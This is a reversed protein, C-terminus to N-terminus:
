ESFNFPVTVVDNGLSKVAEFRWALIAKAVQQDFAAAGTTSGNLSVELVQGSPAITFRLNVKGKIGPEIRLYNNYLHRLGPSHERIVALISATSRVSQSANMDIDASATSKFNNRTTSAISQLNGAIGLGTGNHGNGGEIYGEVSSESYRGRRGSIQTAGTRTLAGVHELKNQDLNKLAHSLIDYATVDTRTSKSSILHQALTGSVAVPHKSVPKPANPSLRPAHVKVLKPPHLKGHINDPMIGTFVPDPRGTVFPPDVTFTPPIVFQINLILTVFIVGLISGSGLCGLLRRDSEIEFPHESNTIVIKRKLSNLFAYLKEGSM